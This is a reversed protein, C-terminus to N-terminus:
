YLLHRNAWLQPQTFGQCTLVDTSFQILEKFRETCVLNRFLVYHGFHLSYSMLAIGLFDLSRTMTADKNGSSDADFDQCEVILNIGKVKVIFTPMYEKNVRATIDHPALRLTTAFSGYHRPGHATIDDLTLNRSTSHWGYPRSSHPHPHSLNRHSGFTLWIHALWWIM